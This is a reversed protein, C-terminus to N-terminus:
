ASARGREVAARLAPNSSAALLADVGLPEDRRRGNGNVEEEVVPPPQGTPALAVGGTPERASEQFSPSTESGKGEKRVSRTPSQDAVPRRGAQLEAVKPKRGDRVWQKTIEPPEYPSPSEKQFETGRQHDHFEPSRLGKDGAPGTVRELMGRKVMWATWAKVRAATVGEWMPVVMARLKAADDPVCGWRDFHPIMLVYFLAADAGHKRRLESLDTSVSAKRHIMRREAM